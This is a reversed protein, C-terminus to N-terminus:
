LNKLNYYLDNLLSDIWSDIDLKQYLREKILRLILTNKVSTIFSDKDQLDMLNDGLGKTEAYIIDILKLVDENNFNDQYQFADLYTKVFSYNGDYRKSIEENYDNISKAKDIIELIDNNIESLNNMDVMSLKEFVNKLMENLKINEQVGLTPELLTNKALQINNILEKYEESDYFTADDIGDMNLVSIKVKFFEYIIDVIEKDDIIDHFLNPDNKLNVFKIRDQVIKLLKRIKDIDITELYEDKKSLRIEQYYNKMNDLCNRIETLGNKNQNELRVRFKELNETDILNNLTSEEEKFKEYIEKVDTILGNLSDESDNAYEAELEKIYDQVTRNYEEDIDIFDVIYGYDYVKGNSNKYPRNVRSITQLLSHAKASRHLYLKKLKNVDYGTTLMQHVIILDPKDEKKFKIQLEKNEKSPIEEDSIVLGTEFDSNNDFWNKVKKAQNNSCCVIMGKVTDDNNIDRFNSFDDEIFKCFQNIYSESEVIDRVKLNNKEFELNKRIDSIVSKAIDEKKIKLTYGDAISKDYFYKHIYDGFKENSREEKTLIPTGTLAIFIADDDINRLNTFFEGNHKYSRHAEDIFFVRQLKAQYENKATPLDDSFKHINIVTVTDKSNVNLQTDLPKNLDSKFEERNNLNNVLYERKEMEGSAQILLDLRDVVYYFRTVFEKKAFYDRLIKILFASLGTKGSGQTHWIIGRKINNDLKNIVAKAAFFQPYRMIHKNRVIGVKTSEEVYTIGYKLFFLLREKDFLSSVFSNCPTNFKLNEIFASDDILTKSYKNDTIVEVIKENNIELLEERKKPQEERFFSFTTNMGNPTTYFSGAKIASVNNNTEEYKMNNSFSVIQLMNFYKKHEDKALRDNLMRKFEQQIGGDNNPKKVELFGLPIGNILVIIDPRFSGTEELGFYLENVVTFDNNEINDFDILKINEHSSVLWDYFKHGFDNYKIVSNIENVLNLTEENSLKINNIREIAPKFIDIFIKTEKDIITNKLSQYNYGLRLFQITAPLKVRTDENFVRYGNEKFNEIM